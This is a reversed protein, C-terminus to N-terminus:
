ANEGVLLIINFQEFDAFCVFYKDGAILMEAIVPLLMLYM